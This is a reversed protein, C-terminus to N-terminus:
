CIFPLIAIDVNVNRGIGSSSPVMRFHSPEFGRRGFEASSSESTSTTMHLYFIFNSCVEFTKDPDKKNNNYSYFDDTNLVILKNGKAIHHSLSLSSFFCFNLANAQDVPFIFSFLQSYFSFFLSRFCCNRISNWFILGFFPSIFTLVETKTKTHIQTTRKKSSM